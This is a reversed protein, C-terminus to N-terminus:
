SLWSLPTPMVHCVPDADEKKMFTKVALLIRKLFHIFSNREILPLTRIILSRGKRVNVLSSWNEEAIQHLALM